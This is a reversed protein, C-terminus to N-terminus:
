YTDYGMIEAEEDSYRGLYHCKEGWFYEGLIEDAEDRTDCQVFFQEGCMDSWESTIEFLYNWM